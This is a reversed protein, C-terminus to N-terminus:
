YRPLKLFFKRAQENRTASVLHTYIVTNKINAHGVWDQVFRLEAGAQHEPSKAVRFQGV